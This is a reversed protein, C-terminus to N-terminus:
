SLTRYNRHVRKRPTSSVTVKVNPLIIGKLRIRNFIPNSLNFEGETM